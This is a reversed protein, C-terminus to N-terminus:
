RRMSVQTKFLDLGPFLVAGVEPDETKRHFPLKRAPEFLLQAFDPEFPRNCIQVAALGLHVIQEAVLVIKRRHVMVMRMGRIDVHRIGEDVLAARNRLFRQYEPVDGARALRSFRKDHRFMMNDEPVPEAIFLAKDDATVGRELIVVRQGNM